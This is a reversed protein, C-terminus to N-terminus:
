NSDHRKKITTVVRNGSGGALRMVGNGTKIVGTDAISGGGNLGSWLSGTVDLDIGNAAGATVNFETGGVQIPIVFQASITSTASNGVVIVTSGLRYSGNSAQFSSSTALTGGNFTLTGGIPTSIDGHTITGSNITIPQSSSTLQQSIGILVTAGSNVTLSSSAGIGGSATALELTGANVTTAGTYTNSAASLKLTGTGVKTLSGSGSLTGAFTTSANNGGVTLAM